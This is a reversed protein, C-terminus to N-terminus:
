RDKSTFTGADFSDDTPLRRERAPEARHSVSIFFSVGVGLIAPAFTMAAIAWMGSDTITSLSKVIGFGLLLSAAASVAAVTAYAGFANM